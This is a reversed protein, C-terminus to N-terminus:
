PKAEKTPSQKKQQEEIWQEALLRGLVKAFALQKPSLNRRRVPSEQPEQDMAQQEQHQSTTLRDFRM